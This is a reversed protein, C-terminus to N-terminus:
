ILKAIVKKLEENLKKMKCVLRLEGGEKEGAEEVSEGRM